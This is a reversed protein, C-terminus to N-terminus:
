WRAVLHEAMLTTPLHTNARPLRPMISADVVSLGQYGIVHGDPDVVATPDDSRGMRCTGAAHVYDGLNARMWDTPDSMSRAADVTTGDSGLVIMDACATIAPQDLVDLLLTLADRARVIDNAHSLMNFEITPEVTPDDSVIRVSGTSEVDMIGAMVMGMARGEEGMGLHNIPLLQLDNHGISSSARVLTGVGLQHDSTQRAHESLMIVAPISAHDVLHLGINRNEIGSRQLIAPSHFAGACMVVHIAGIVTGDVLEVGTARRQDCLVRAVMADSCVTLQGHNESERHGDGARHASVFRDDLYAAASTVRHGAERTLRIPGVGLADPACADDVRRHGLATAAEIVAHDIPGWEAASCTAWALRNSQRAGALDGWTWGDLQWRNYDDALGDIYVMANVSSSGGIGRGRQYDRPANGAARTAVLGPWSRGPEALAAFFSAGLVGPPEAGGPGADILMVRQGRECLRRAVVCGASGAGVIVADFPASLAKV